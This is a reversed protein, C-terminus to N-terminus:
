LQRTGVKGMCAEAEWQCRSTHIETVYPRPQKWPRRFFVGTSSPILKQPLGTKFPEWDALSRPLHTPARAVGTFGTVFVFTIFLSWGRSSYRWCALPWCRDRWRCASDPFDRRIWPGKICNLLFLNHQGGNAHGQRRKSDPQCSIPISVLSSHSSLSLSTCKCCMCMLPSDLAIIFWLLFSGAAKRLPRPPFLNPLLQLSIHGLSM